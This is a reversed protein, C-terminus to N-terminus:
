YACNGMVVYEKFDEWGAGQDEGKEDRVRGESDVVAREARKDAVLQRVAEVVDTLQQNIALVCQGPASNSTAPRGAEQYEAAALSAKASFFCHKTSSYELSSSGVM